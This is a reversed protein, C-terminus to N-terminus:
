GNAAKPRAIWGMSGGTPVGSHGHGSCLWFTIALRGAAICLGRRAVISTRGIAIPRSTTANSRLSKFSPPATSLDRHLSVVSERWQGRVAILVAVIPAQKHKVGIKGLRVAKKEPGALTSHERSGIRIASSLLRRTRPM